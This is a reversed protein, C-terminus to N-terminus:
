TLEMIPLGDRTLAPTERTRYGMRWAVHAHQGHHWRVAEAIAQWDAANWASREVPLDRVRISGGCVCAERWTRRDKSPPRM